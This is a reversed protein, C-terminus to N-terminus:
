TENNLEVEILKRLSKEFGIFHNGKGCKCRGDGHTKQGGCGACGWGDPFSIWHWLWWWGPGDDVQTEVLSELSAGLVLAPPPHVL